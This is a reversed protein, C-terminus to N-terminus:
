GFCNANDFRTNQNPPTLRTAAAITIAVATQTNVVRFWLACCGDTLPTTVAMGPFLTATSGKSLRLSSVAGEGNVKEGANDANGDPM